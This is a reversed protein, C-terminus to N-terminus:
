YVYNQPNHAVGNVRVELHLHPGTSNGTSGVASIKEGQKVKQGVKVYLKSCHGYYTQIGNGHSIAVMYGYSGKWGAFTVTGAAAAKVGTGSPAAIDLGTHSGSRVRSMHGFRSSIRGSVPRILSVGLNVKTNSMNRSTSVKGSSTRAININTNKPKIIKKEYLSSIVKESSTFGELETDYKETITIDDVNNSNKKKLEKVVSEATEFDAVYAKEEDDELIAYYKYYSVGTSKVTEFIEDDNTTVGRKLLCLKYTPMKDVSVFALSDNDGNGNEIYNNINKELKGKNACYGLFEGDLTVAYIPKYLFSVAGVVLITGICVLILFKMSTRLNILIKKMIIM